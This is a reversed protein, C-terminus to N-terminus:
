IHTIPFQSFLSYCVKELSEKRDGSKSVSELPKPEEPSVEEKDHGNTSTKAKSASLPPKSHQTASGSLLTLLPLPVLLWKQIM